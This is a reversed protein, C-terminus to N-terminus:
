RGEWRPLRKGAFAAPGERADESAAVRRWASDNTTWHRKDPEYAARAVELTARVALPGNACIRSALSRAENMLHGAPVVRNVLGLQLATEADIPDGTLLLEMARVRPIMAPLRLAGGSAAFLGRTVEPMGLTAHEAAVVLDCALVLECGGALAAGNVAAIVPKTRPYTTFGAFGGRGEIIAPGEGALFAKLDMGACFARDGSGTLIAVRSQENKEFWDVAARLAASM